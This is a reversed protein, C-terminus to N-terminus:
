GEESPPAQKVAQIEAQLEAFNIHFDIIEVELGCKPCELRDSYITWSQNKCKCTLVEEM